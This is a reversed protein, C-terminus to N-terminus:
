DTLAKMSLLAMATSYSKGYSFGCDIFSGDIEPLECLLGLLKECNQKAKRGTLRAAECAAYFNHFFYYGATNGLSPIHFNTKRAPEASQPYAEFFIELATQLRKTDAEGCLYQAWECLPQRNGAGKMDRTVHPHDLMYGYLGRPGGRAGDLTKAATEFASKPVKIGAERAAHMCYTVAATVFTSKYVYHKWSGDNDKQHQLLEKVWRRMHKKIGAPANKAALRRAYHMLRFGDAYTWVYAEGREFRVDKGLLFKDARALAADVQEPALERWALLASACLAAIAVEFNEIQPGGDGGGGWRFGPWHGRSRQQSILFALARRTVDRADSRKRRWQTDPALRFVEDALPGVGQMSRVLAAEGPRGDKGVAACAHAKGVWVNAPHGGAAKTWADKAGAEDRMIYRVIGLYYLVRKQQPLQDWQAHLALREAAAQYRGDKFLQEGQLLKATPPPVAGGGHRRLVEELVFRFYSADFTSIRDMRHVVTGDPKLFLLGPQIFRPVELGFRKALAGGGPLKLCVFNENLAEIVDGHSLPGVMMYRDLLHPLIIHQGEVAPVYWFLLKKQKKAEALCAEISPAAKIAAGIWERSHEVLKGGMVLKVMMAETDPVEAAHFWNVATYCRKWLPEPASGEEAHGRTPALLLLTLIWWFARM